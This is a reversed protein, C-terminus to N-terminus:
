TCSECIDPNELDCSWEFDPDEFAAMASELDDDTADNEDDDM